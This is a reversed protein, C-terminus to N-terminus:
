VGDDAAVILDAAHQLDERSAGLVIRDEDPLRTDTLGGDGFAKGITDYTAVDGLVEAALLDVREVHARQDSPRLVLTLELLAELGDDGLDGLALALDDEEDVLDM